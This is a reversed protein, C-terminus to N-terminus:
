RRDRRPLAEDALRAYGAIMGRVTKIQTDLAAIGEEEGGESVGAGRESGDDQTNVVRLELELRRKRALQQERKQEKLERLIARLETTRAAAETGSLSVAPAPM